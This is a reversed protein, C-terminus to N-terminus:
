RKWAHVFGVGAGALENARHAGDEADEGEDEGDGNHDVAEGGEVAVPEPPVLHGDLPVVAVELGELVVRLAAAAAAGVARGGRLRLHRRHRGLGDPLVVPPRRGRAVPDRSSSFLRM